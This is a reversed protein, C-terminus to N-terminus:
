AVKNYHTHQSGRVFPSLLVGYRSLGALTAAYDSNPGTAGLFGLPLLAPLRSAEVPGRLRGFATSPPGDHSAWHQSYWASCGGNKAGRAPRSGLVFLALPIPRYAGGSFCSCREGVFREARLASFSPRVRAACGRWSCRIQSAGLRGAVLPIGGVLAPSLRGFSSVGSADTPWWPLALVHSPTVHAALAAGTLTFVSVVVLRVAPTGLGAGRMSHPLRSPHHMGCRFSLFVTFFSVLFTSFFMFAL